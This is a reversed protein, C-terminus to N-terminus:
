WATGDDQLGCTHLYGSSVQQWGDEGYLAPSPVNRSVMSGDGLQGYDNAGWCIVTANKTIACTHKYGASIQKVAPQAAGGGVPAPRNQDQYSGDGLQGDANSGWCCPTETSNQIACSHSSGTTVQLWAGSGPAVVAVPVSSGVANGDGLQGNSNSGWCFGSENGDGIACAHSGGASIDILPISADQAIAITLLMFWVLLGIRLAHFLSMTGDFQALIKFISTYAANRTIKSVRSTVEARWSPM